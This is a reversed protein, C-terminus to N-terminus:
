FGVPPLEGADNLGVQAVRAVGLRICEVLSVDDVPESVECLFVREHDGPLLVSAEEQVEQGASSAEVGRDLHM